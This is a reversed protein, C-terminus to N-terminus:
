FNFNFDHSSLSLSLFTGEAVRKKMDEILVDVEVSFGSETKRRKRAETGSGGGNEGFGNVGGGASEEATRKKSKTTGVGLHHGYDEDGSMGFGHGLPSKERGGGGTGGGGGLGGSSNLPGGGVGSLTLSGPKLKGPSKNKGASSWGGGGTASKDKLLQVEGASVYFGKQKTQAM